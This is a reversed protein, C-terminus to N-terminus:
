KLLGDVIRTFREYPQAGSLSQLDTMVGDKIRGIFFAPTGSVGFRKGMNFDKQVLAKQEPDNICDSFKEADLELEAAQAKFFSPSFQRQNEFLAHHMQWYQGQKGACRATISAAEANRHFSLPFDMAIYQIKGTKVYNTDLKSFTQKHHRACFPCEFDTFELIAVKANDDGLRPADGTEIKSVVPAKRAQPSKTLKEIDSKIETVEHKIVSVESKLDRIDASLEKLQQLVEESLSTETAHAPACWITMMSFIMTFLIKTKNNIM